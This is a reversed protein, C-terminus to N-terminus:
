AFPDRLDGICASNVYKTLNRQWPLLPWKHYFSKTMMWYGSMWFGMSPAPIKTINWIYISIYDPNTTSSNIQCWEIARGRFGGAAHLFRPSIERLFRIQRLNRQRPWLPQIHYFKDSAMWYGSGSFERIPALIEAIHRICTSSYGIKDLIENGICCPYDLTFKLWATLYASGSFWVM